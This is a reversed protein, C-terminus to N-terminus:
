NVNRQLMKAKEETNATNCILETHLTHKLKEHVLSPTDNVSEPSLVFTSASLPVNIIM